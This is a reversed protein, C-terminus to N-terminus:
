TSASAARHPLRRAERADRRALPAPVGAGKLQDLYGPFLAGMFEREGFIGAFREREDVVPLAPLGSDLLPRM